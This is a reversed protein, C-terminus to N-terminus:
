PSHGPMKSQNFLFHFSKMSYGTWKISFKLISDLYSAFLQKEHQNFLMTFWFWCIKEEKERRKTIM